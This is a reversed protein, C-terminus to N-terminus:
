SPAKQFRPTKVVPGCSKWDEYLHLASPIYLHTDESKVTTERKRSAQFVGLLSSELNLTTPIWINSNFYILRQAGNRV